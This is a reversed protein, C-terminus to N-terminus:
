EDCEVPSAAPPNCSTSMGLEALKGNRKEVKILVHSPNIDGAIWVFKTRKRSVYAQRLMALDIQLRKETTPSVSICFGYLTPSETHIVLPFHKRCLVDMLFEKVAMASEFGDVM